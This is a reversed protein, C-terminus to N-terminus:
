PQTVILGFWMAMLVTIILLVGGMTGGRMHWWIRVRQKRKRYSTRWGPVFEEKVFRYTAPGFLVISVLCGILSVIGWVLIFKTLLQM